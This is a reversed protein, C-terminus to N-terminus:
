KLVTGKVSDKNRNKTGISVQYTYVGSAVQEGYLNKGDWQLTHLGNETPNDSVVYDIIKGTSDYVEMLAFCPDRNDKYKVNFAINVKSSGSLDVPNPYPSSPNQKSIKVDADCWQNLYKVVKAQDYCKMESSFQLSSDCMRCPYGCTNCTNEKCAPYEYYDPLFGMLHGLEHLVCGGPDIYNSCIAIGKRNKDLVNANFWELGASIRGFGQWFIATGLDEDRNVLVVVLNKNPCISAADMVKDANCCVSGESSGPIMEEPIFTNCDVEPKCELDNTNHVFYMNIKDGYAAITKDSKIRFWQESFWRVEDSFLTRDEEYDDGVFVINLSKFPDSGLHADNCTDLEIAEKNINFELIKRILKNEYVVNIDYKGNTLEERNLNSSCCTRYFGAVRKNIPEIRSIKIIRGSDDSVLIRANRIFNDTTISPNHNIRISTDQFFASAVPYVKELRKIIFEASLKREEEPLFEVEEAAIEADLYYGIEKFRLDGPFSLIGKLNINNCNKVELTYTIKDKIKFHQQGLIGVDKYIFPMRYEEEIEETIPNMFNRYIKREACSNAKEIINIEALGSKSKNIQYFNIPAELNKIYELTIDEQAEYDYISPLGSGGSNSAREPSINRAIPYACGSLLLSSIVLLAFLKKM